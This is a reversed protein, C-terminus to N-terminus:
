EVFGVFFLCSLADFVAKGFDVAAMAVLVKEVGAEGWLWFM